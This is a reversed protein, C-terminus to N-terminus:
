RQSLEIAPAVYETNAASVFGLAFAKEISVSDNLALTRLELESIEASLTRNDAAMERDAVLSFVAKGIFGLYMALASMTLFALVWFARAERWGRLVGAQSQATNM